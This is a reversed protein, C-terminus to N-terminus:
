QVETHCGEQASIPFQPRDFKGSIHCMTRLGITRLSQSNASSDISVSSEAHKLDDQLVVASILKEKGM